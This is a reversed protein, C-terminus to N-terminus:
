PSRTGAITSRSTLATCISSTASNLGCLDRTRIERTAPSMTRLCSFSIVTQCVWASSPAICALCTPWTSSHPFYGVRYNFWFKSTCVLVAWNNTHTMARSSSLRVGDVDDVSSSAFFRHVAELQESPVFLSPFVLPLVVMGAAALLACVATLRVIRRADWTRAKAM